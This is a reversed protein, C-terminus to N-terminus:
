LRYSGPSRRIKQLFGQPSHDVGKLSEEWEHVRVCNNYGTMSLYRIATGQSSEVVHQLRDFIPDEWEDFCLQRRWFDYLSRGGSFEIRSPAL